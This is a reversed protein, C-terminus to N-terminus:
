SMVGYSILWGSVLGIELVLSLLIFTNLRSLRREFELATIYLLGALLLAWIVAIGLGKVGAIYSGLIALGALGVGKFTVWIIEVIIRVNLSDFNSLKATNRNKTTFFIDFTLWTSVMVSLGALTGMGLGVWAGMSWNGAILGYSIGVLLGLIAAAAILWSIVRFWCGFFGIGLIYRSGEASWGLALIGYFVFVWWPVNVFNLFIGLCLYLLWTAFLYLGIKM